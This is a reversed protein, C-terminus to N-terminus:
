SIHLNTESLIVGDGILNDVVEHAGKVTNRLNARSPTQIYLEM